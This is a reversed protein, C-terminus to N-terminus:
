TTVFDPGRGRRSLRSKFIGSRDDHDEPKSEGASVQSPTLDSARMRTRTGERSACQHVPGPQVSTALPKVLSSGVHSHCHCRSRPLSATFKFYRGMDDTVAM